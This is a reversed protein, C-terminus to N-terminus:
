CESPLISELVRGKRNFVVIWGGAKQDHSSPILANLTTAVTKRIQADIHTGLDTAVDVLLLIM